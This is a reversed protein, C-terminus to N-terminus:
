AIRALLKALENKASDVVVNADFFLHQSSRVVAEGHIFVDRVDRGSCSYVLASYPSEVTAVSPHSRDVIVIDALKGAELSGLDKERGLTRAGALTAMEFAQEAPLSEPGFKPKQLLAALRMELFPDMTNNCPAGDAGLSVTMGAELYRSIPAIGSALKLNSSPCHVLKTKTGVMKRVEGGTLHVGHVIVSQPSLIGLDYLFDVNSRGTRKKVLAIEDKNESAHTHILLNHDKQLEVSARLIKETCSVAFRPCLAYETLSNKQHWMKILRECEELSEKTEMYLPGSTSKLDALCNGGWYRMKSQVVAEFIADTHRTSAMDLIATTGLRQMELLGVVASAYMSDDNHSSEFPWIKKQLWDLLAMDDALGRFLAQCLHTHTQILGPIVFCGHADIVKEGPLPELNTELQQIAPGSLRLDGVFVRRGPDMTVLTGGRILTSPASNM